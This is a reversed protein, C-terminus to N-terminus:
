QNKPDRPPKPETTPDGTPDSRHPSETFPERAPEPRGPSPSKEREILPKDTERRRNPDEQGYLTFPRKPKDLM